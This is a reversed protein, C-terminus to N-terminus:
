VRGTASENFSKFANCSRHGGLGFFGERLEEFVETELGGDLLMM